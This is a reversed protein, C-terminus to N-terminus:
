IYINRFILEQMRCKIVIKFIQNSKIISERTLTFNEMKEDIKGLIKIVTIKFDKDSLKLIKIVRADIKIVKRKDQSHVNKKKDRLM